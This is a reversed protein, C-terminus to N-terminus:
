RKEERAIKSSCARNNDVCKTSASRTKTDRGDMRPICVVNRGNRLQVYKEKFAIIRKRQIL